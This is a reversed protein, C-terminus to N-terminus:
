DAKLWPPMIVTTARGEVTLAGEMRDLRMLAIAAGDRGTLVEGARLEGNLVEAGEPPPPGDFTLPLMRKKIEGRRKMRSTTEQGVFCGKRFDIGNLLDFYAEIPYRVDHGGDRTPDPVGVSQRHADWADEDADATRKGLSADPPARGGLTPLRPDVVFGDAVGPWSAFVPRDDSTIEVQARLRYMSLRATLADRREAAVDLVVADDEGWLFLDFLLRGPPSLLAGFRVEGPALTEVDQTLLNHLFSRTDPGAVRILARSDLRAISDIM